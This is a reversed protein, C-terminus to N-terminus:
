WVRPVLRYRVRAAYESYGPLEDRLTKDELATRVVLLIMLVVAPVAAWRSSLLLPMGVFSLLGGAYAPHRVWRYPGSSVVYHGRDQQLRVVASFFRNEIMAYSALAYGAVILLLGVLKTGLAFPASMGWRAEIGAVVPVVGGGLGVLRGLVRDWPKIDEHSVFRAREAILDPHRRAALVRSIAFGLVAMLGYAWAEWWGWRGTILIPSFPLLVLVLLLRAVVGPSFLRQCNAVSSGGQRLRNPCDQLCPSLFM